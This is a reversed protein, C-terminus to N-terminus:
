LREGRVQSHIGRGVIIRVVGGSEPEEEAERAEGARLTWRRAAVRAAVDEALSGAVDLRALLMAMYGGASGPSMHHLDLQWADWNTHSFVRTEWDDRVHSGAGRGRGSEMKRHRHEGAEGEGAAVCM